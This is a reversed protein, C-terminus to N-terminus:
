DSPPISACVSSSISSVSRRLSVICGRRRQAGVARGSPRPVPPWIATSHRALHSRVPHGSPTSDAGLWKHLRYTKDLGGFFPEIRVPRLALLMGVSMVGIGIIGTYTVLVHRVDFFGYNPPLLPDALLWLASLILLLAIYGVKIPKM